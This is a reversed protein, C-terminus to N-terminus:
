KGEVVRGHTKEIKGWFQEVQDYVAGKRVAKFVKDKRALSDITSCCRLDLTVIGQFSFPTV